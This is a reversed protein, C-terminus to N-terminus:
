KGLARDLRAAALRANAIAQTRDLAAQLLAVQTDLVDTSTAVGVAFRDGVVRRAESASTVADDAAAIAARSSEIESLRQHVEFALTADFDAVRAEAARKTAATEAM